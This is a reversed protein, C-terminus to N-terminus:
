PDSAGAVDALGFGSASLRAHAHLCTFSTWLPQAPLGVDVHFRTLASDSKNGWDGDAGAAGLDYGLALLVRQRQTPTRVPTWVDAIGPDDYIGRLVPAFPFGLVDQKYTPCLDSHGHHDSPRIHPWRAIIEKGVHVMLEIQEDTWPQVSLETRGDPTAVRIWDPGAGVGPRAYGIGVTEVGITTRSGKDHASRVLAGDWRLLQNIGAHWSRDDLAVYRDVGESRTRGIGYHASAIGRRTPNAGGLVRSCTVLDHTATWHWTVGAPRGATAATWGHSVAQGATVPILWRESIAVSM